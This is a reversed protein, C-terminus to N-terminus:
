KIVSFDIGDEDIINITTDPGITADTSSPNILSLSYTKVNELAIVDDTIGLSVTRKLEGSGTMLTIVENVPNGSIITGSM